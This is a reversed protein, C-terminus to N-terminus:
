AKEVIVGCSKTGKPPPEQSRAHAAAAAASPNNLDVGLQEARARAAQWRLASSTPGDSMVLPVWHDPDDLEQESLGVRTGYGRL